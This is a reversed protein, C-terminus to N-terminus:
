KEDDEPAPFQVPQEKAPLKIWQHLGAWALLPVGIATGAVSFPVGALIGMVMGKALSAGWPDKALFRQCLTTALLGLFGVGIGTLVLLLPDFIELVNFVNDLAIIALAGLPHIPAPPLSRRVQISNSM